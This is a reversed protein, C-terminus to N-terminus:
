LEKELIEEEEELQLQLQYDLFRYLNKVIEDIKKNEDINEGTFTRDFVLDNNEYICINILISDKDDIYINLHIVFNKYGNELQYEYDYEYEYGYACEYNKYDINTILSYDIPKINKLNLMGYKNFIDELIQHSRFLRNKKMVDPTNKKRYMFKVNRKM